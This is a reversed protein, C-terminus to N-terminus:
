NASCRSKLNWKSLILEINAKRMKDTSIEMAHQLLYFAKIDPDKIPKDGTKINVRM